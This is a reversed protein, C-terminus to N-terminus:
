IALIQSTVQATMCGITADNGVEFDYEGTWVDDKDGRSPSKVLIIPWQLTAGYVVNAGAVGTGVDIIPGVAQLALYTQSESGIPNDSRTQALLAAAQSDEEVTLKGTMNANGEVIGSFSPKTPDRFFAPKFRDKSDFSFEVLHTLGSLAALNTGIYIGVSTPQLPYTNIVTAAALYTIGGTAISDQVQQGIMTATFTVESENLKISVDKIFCGSVQCAGSVATGCQITFTQPTDAASSTALTNWQKAKTSTGIAAPASIACHGQTLFVLEDYGLVGSITLETSEKGRTKGLAGKLGRGRIAKNPQIPKVVVTVVPLEFVKPMAELVGLSTEATFILGQFVTAREMETEGLGNATIEVAASPTSEGNANVATAHYYTTTTPVPIEWDPENLSEVLTWAGGATPSSYLNYQLVNDGAGNQNASLYQTDGFLEPFLGTPASPVPGAGNLALMSIAGVGPAGSTWVASVTTGTIPTNTSNIASLIETNSAGGGQVATFPAAVSLVSSGLMGLFAIVHDNANVTTISTTPSTTTIGRQSLASISPITTAGATLSFTLSQATNYASTGGLTITTAYTGATTIPATWIEQTLNSGATVRGQFTWVLGTTLITTVPATGGSGQSAVCIVALRHDGTTVANFALTGGGASYVLSHQDLTVTTSM